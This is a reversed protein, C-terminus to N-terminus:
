VVFRAIEHPNHPSMHVFAGPTAHCESEWASYPTEIVRVREVDILRVIPPETPGTVGDVTDSLAAIM